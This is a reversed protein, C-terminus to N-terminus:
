VRSSPGFLSQIEDNTMGTTNPLFKYMFAIFYVTLVAFPLFALEGLAASVYPFGVGISLIGFWNTFMMISTGAARISDPYLSTGTPYALPGLAINYSFVYFAIFFISLGSIHLSLAITLGVSGIFMAGQGFLLMSRNGFRRTLIIVFLNPIMLMTGVVISGIRGDSAGATKFLMSSYFFVANCGTFQTALAMHIALLVQIRYRKSMLTKFPSVNTNQKTQAVYVPLQTGNEPVTSLNVSLSRQSFGARKVVIWRLATIVHEEGYLRALVQEAEEQRGKLILWSPSEVMHHRSFFLFTLAIVTPFGAIYRWGSATNAFFFTVDVLFIGSAIALGYGSGFAGRLHPPAVESIYGNCLATATGSALGAIGRGVAFVPISPASAQVIAGLIMTGCNVVLTRKRGFRDSIHASSVAGIMGGIVLANVAFLWETKSHGPFMLCTGPKVPRADCDAQNHFTSLNLQSLCWGLYSAALLALAVSSYVLKKVPPPAAAEFAVDTTPANRALPTLIQTFPAVPYHDDPMVISVSRKMDPEVADPDM